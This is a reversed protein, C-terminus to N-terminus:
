YAALITAIKDQLKHCTRWGAPGNTLVAFIAVDGNAMPVYGTLTSVGNLTGTKGRLKGKLLPGKHRGKITGKTGAISLSSLYDDRIRNDRYADLLVAVLQKASLRNDRSLGSGNVLSYSGPGIGLSSLYENFLKIGKETTGPEGSKLAGLHKVLQEAVFNNSFRNMDDVILRLPKSPADLLLKTGAAQRERVGGDVPVGNEVLNTRFASGLYLAPYSVNVYKEFHRKKRPLGGSVIVADHGSKTVRKLHVGRGVAKLKNVIEIYDNPADLTIEYGSPKRDVLVRVSNFNLATPATAAAYPRQNDIATQRAPGEFYSEDVVIDGKVRRLGRRILEAVMAEMVETVLFPDGNGKIYLDGIAGRGDIRNTTFLTRFQYDGGLSKLAVAATIMKVNSAPNLPKDADIDILAKGSRAAVAYIGNTARGLGLAAIAQRAKGNLPAQAAHLPATALLAVSLALAAITYRRLMCSNKCKKQPGTLYYSM